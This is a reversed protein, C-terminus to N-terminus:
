SKQEYPGARKRKWDVLTKICRVHWCGALRANGQAALTPGHRGRSKGARRLLGASHARGGRGACAQEFVRSGRTSFDLPM